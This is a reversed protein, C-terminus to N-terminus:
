RNRIVDRHACGLFALAEQRTRFLRMNLGVNRCVTEIFDHSHDKPDALVAIRAYRDFLEHETLGTNAFRYQDLASDQNIAETVDVLYNSIGLQKGLAHAELTWQTGTERTIVGHVEILIFDGEKDSSLTYTM